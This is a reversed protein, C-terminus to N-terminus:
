AAATSTTAAHRVVRRPAQGFLRSVRIGQVASRRLRRRPPTEEGADILDPAYRFGAPMAPPEVPLAQSAFLALQEHKMDARPTTGRLYLHRASRAIRQSRGITVGPRVPAGGTQAHRPAHDRAHFRQDRRHDQFGGYGAHLLRPAGRRHRRRRRLSRPGPGPKRSSTPPRSRRPRRRTPSRISPSCPNTRSCWGARPSAVNLDNLSM